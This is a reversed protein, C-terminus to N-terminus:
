LGLSYKISFGDEKQSDPIKIPVLCLTGIHGTGLLFVPYQTSDCNMAPPILYIRHSDVPLPSQFSM